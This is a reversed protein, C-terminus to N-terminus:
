YALITKSSADTTTTQLVAPTRAPRGGPARATPRGVSWPPDTNNRGM